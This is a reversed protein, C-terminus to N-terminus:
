RVLRTALRGVLGGVPGGMLGRILLGVLGGVLAGVLGKVEPLPPMEPLTLHEQQREELDQAQWQVGALVDAAKIGKPASLLDQQVPCHVHPFITGVLAGVLVGVPTGVLEGMLTGMLGGVLGDAVRGVWYVM